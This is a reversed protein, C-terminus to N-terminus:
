SSTTLTDILTLPPLFSPSWSWDKVSSASSVLAVLLWCLWREGDDTIGNDSLSVIKIRKDRQLFAGIAACGAPVRYPNCCQLLLLQACWLVDRCLM